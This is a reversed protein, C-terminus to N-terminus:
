RGRRLRRRLRACNFDSKDITLQETVFDFLDSGAGACLELQRSRWDLRRAASCSTPADSEPSRPSHPPLRRGCSVAVLLCLLATLCRAHRSSGRHRTCEGGPFSGVVKRISRISLLLPCVLRPLSTESRYLRPDAGLPKPRVAQASSASRAVIRPCKSGQHSTARPDGAEPDASQPGGARSPGPKVSVAIEVSARHTAALVDM